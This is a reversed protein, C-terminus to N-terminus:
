IVTLTLLDSTYPNVQTTIVITTHSHLVHWIAIDGLMQCCLLKFTLVSNAVMRLCSSCPHSVTEVSTETDLSLQVSMTPWTSCIQSCITNVSCIVHHLMFLNSCSSVHFSMEEDVFLRPVFAIDNRSFDTLLRWTPLLSAVTSRSNHQECLQLLVYLKKNYIKNFTENCTKDYPDVWRCYFM